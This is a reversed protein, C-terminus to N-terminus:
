KLSDQKRPGAAMLFITGQASNLALVTKPITLGPCDTHSSLAHDPIFLLYDHHLKIAPTMKHYLTTAATQYTDVSSWMLMHKPLMVHLILSIVETQKNEGGEM